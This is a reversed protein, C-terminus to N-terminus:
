EGLIEELKREIEKLEVKAKPKIIKRQVSAREKKKLIKEKLIIHRLIKEEEKIEKELEKLKEAESNFTLYALFAESNKKILYALRIKIPPNSKQISGGKEEISSKIRESLSNIEERSLGSHILYTLEYTKM